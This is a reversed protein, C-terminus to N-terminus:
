CFFIGPLKLYNSFNASNYDWLFSTHHCFRLKTISQANGGFKRNGFCYDNEQMFFAGKPHRTNEFVNKYFEGTWKMIERPYPATKIENSNFILSVFLTKEDQIIKLLIKIFIGVYVTGGGTFRSLLQINNKKAAEVHVLKDIKRSLGLVIAPPTGVNMIVWNKSTNRLLAEDLKLMELIPINKLQLLGLSTRAM